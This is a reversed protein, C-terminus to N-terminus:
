SYKFNKSLLSMSPHVPSPPLPFFLTSDFVDLVQLRLETGKKSDCVKEISWYLPLTLAQYKPSSNFAIANFGSYTWNSISDPWYDAFNENSDYLLKAPAVEFLSRVELKRSIVPRNFLAGEFPSYDSEIRLPYDPRFGFPLDDYPDDPDDIKQLFKIQDTPKLFVVEIWFENVYNEIKISSGATCDFASKTYTYTQAASIPTASFGISLFPVLITWLLLGHPIQMIFSLPPIPKKEIPYESSNM